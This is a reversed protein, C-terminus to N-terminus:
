DIHISIIWKRKKVRHQETLWSFFLYKLTWDQLYALLITLCFFRRQLKGVFIPVVILFFIRILKLFIFDIM